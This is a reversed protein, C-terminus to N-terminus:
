ALTNLKIRWSSCTDKLVQSPNEIFLSNLNGMSGNTIASAFAKMGEDGIKNYGLFLANLNAMSGSAIADSLSVMGPDSIQNGGLNLWTLEALSGM